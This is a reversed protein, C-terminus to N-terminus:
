AEYVKHNTYTIAATVQQLNLWYNDKLAWKVDWTKDLHLHCLCNIPSECADHEWPEDQRHSCAFMQTCVQNMRAINVRLCKHACRTWGPSTFMCVNTHVCPEDQRHSCALRQTCVQNLRAIHVRLCKHACRTWGPSTFVCAETHFNNHGLYINENVRENM